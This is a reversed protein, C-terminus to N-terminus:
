DPGLSGGGAPRRHRAGCAGALWDGGAGGPDAGHLRPGARAGHGGGRHPRLRGGSGGGAGTRPGAGAPRRRNGRDGGRVMGPGARRDRRGSDVGRDRGLTRRAPHLGRRRCRRPRRRRRGRDGPGHGGAGALQVGHRRREARGPGGAAAGHRGGASRRRRGAVAGHRRQRRLGLVGVPREPGDGLGARDDARRAGAVIRLTSGSVSVAAVQPNSAAAAYALAEGEPDQFVAALDITASRGLELVMGGPADVVQPARNVPESPEDPGDPDPPPALGEVAHGAQNTLANGGLDLTAEPRPTGAAIGGDLAISGAPTLADAPVGFGDPDLDGIQVQYRFVLDLTGSGLEYAARRRASGIALALTPTGTVRVARDFTVRVRITAGTGYSGGAPPPSAVTVSAVAPAALATGDVKHSASAAVTGHTLTAAETADRADVIAGGNLALGNAPIAIGDTTDADAGGAGSGGSGAGQVLYHFRLRNTGSGSAYDAQRVTAGVTLEVQPTGTAEVRQTFEAALEIREGLGYTDGSAPSSTITVGSAAAVTFQNGDVRRNPANNIATLGLAADAGDPRGRITGGNLTLAGAGISYGDGDSDARVVTYRFVLSTTGTGSVYSAQREETGIGLAVRPTGTVDVARNFTVTVEIRNGREFVGGTAPNGTLSSVIPPTVVKHAADDGIAHTGLGLSAAVTSDRADNIAGGNLALAGAAVSIGDDDFDGAAVTYVYTLSGGAYSYDGVQRTQTGITLALSPLGGTTVVNVSRNFTVTVEIDEGLRYTDGSAPTSVIAAGSVAAATLATGDM